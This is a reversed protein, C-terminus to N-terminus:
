ELKRIWGVLDDLVASREPENFIEHALRDAMRKILRLDSAELELRRMQEAQTRDEVMLLACAPRLGCTSFM